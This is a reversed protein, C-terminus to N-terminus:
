QVVTTLIDLLRPRPAGVVVIKDKFSAPDVLPKEGALDAAGLLVPRLVVSAPLAAQRRDCSRAQTGLLARRSTRHEGYYSPIEADQLPLFRDRLWVERDLRVQDPRIDLAILAAGDWRLCVVASGLPHVPRVRRASRRSRARHLQARHRPESERDVPDAIHRDASRRCSQTPVSRDAQPADMTPTSSEEILRSRSPWRTPSTSSRLGAQATSDALAQDSQEGSPRRGLSSPGGDAETFLVDYAVVEAPARALFDLVYSHVVRPWPWRGFVPELHRLSKEDINVLVIDNRASSPDAVARMRWDYTKIEVTGVFPLRGLALALVASALGIAVGILTKWVVCLLLCLASHPTRFAGGGRTTQFDAVREPSAEGFRAWSICARPPPSHPIIRRVSREARLRTREEWVMALFVVIAPDELEGGHHRETDESRCPGLRRRMREIREGVRLM